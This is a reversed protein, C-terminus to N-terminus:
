EDRFRMKIVSEWTEPIGESIRIIMGTRDVLLSTPVITINIPESQTRMSDILVPFPVPNENLYSQVTVPKEGLNVAVVGLGKNKYENYLESMMPMERRCPGCWTAWFNVWTLDNSEIVHRLSVPRGEVDQLTFFHIQDSEQYVLTQNSRINEKVWYSYAGFLLLCIIGLIGSSKKM